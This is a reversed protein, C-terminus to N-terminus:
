NSKVAKMKHVIVDLWAFNLAPRGQRLFVTAAEANVGCKETFCGRIIITLSVTQKQKYFLVNKINKFINRNKIKIILVLWKCFYVNIIRTKINYELLIQKKSAYLGWIVSRFSIQCLDNFGVRWIPIIRLKHGVSCFM